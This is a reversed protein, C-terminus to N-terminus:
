NKQWPWKWINETEIYWDNINALRESADNINNIRAGHLSKPVVYILSPSYLFVAPVDNTLEKEFQQYLLTRAKEEGTARASELLKDAKANTYGAINLGPPTRESSHWFAFLDTNRGVSEGFLLADFKRPVIVNQELDSSDFIEISVKAGLKQWSAKLMDAAAKLEPVDPVAISFSLTLATSGKAAKQSLMGTSSSISWGDKSLISKAKEFASADHPADPALSMSRPLPSLAETGYGMLVSKIIDDTPASLALAQRVAKDAFVKAQSQNFFVAYFRPLPPAIISSRGTDVSAASEPSISSMSDIEKAKYASVLDDETAYFHVYLDAIYPKGSAYKEFPVFHYYSPIGASNRKVDKIRYPGSGIPEFNFESFLFADGSVDKWIHQPLIGLTLNEIFPAYPKKLSFEITKKDIVKVSVGSWDAAKPSKVAPDTAKKITFEVDYATLPTGDHFFVKDKLTVTYRLGDPSVAYSEALDPVISGDPSVKLLGSYVLRTLDRGADTIPLLPNIYRPYGQIGESLSGGEAPMETAFEDSARKMLALSTAALIVCFVGLIIKESVSMAEIVELLKARLLKFTPRTKSM